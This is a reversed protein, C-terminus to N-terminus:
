KKLPEGKLTNILWTLYVQAKELDEVGNKNNFRWIYKECNGKCYGVFEDDTMSARIADICEISGETYHSPHLVIDTSHSPADSPTILPTLEAYEKQWNIETM